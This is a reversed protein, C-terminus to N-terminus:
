RRVAPVIEEVAEVDPGEGREDDAEEERQRAERSTEAVVDTHRGSVHIGQSPHQAEEHPTQRVIDDTRDPLDGAIVAAVAKFRLHFRRLLDDNLPEMHIVLTNVNTSPHLIRHHRGFISM